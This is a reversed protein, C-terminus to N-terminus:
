ERWMLFARCREGKQSVLVKEWNRKANHRTRDKRGHVRIIQKESRGRRGRKKKELSSCLDDPTIARRGRLVESRLPFGAKGLPNASRPEKTKTM